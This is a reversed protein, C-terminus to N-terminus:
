HNKIWLIVQAIVVAPVLVALIWGTIKESRDLFKDM